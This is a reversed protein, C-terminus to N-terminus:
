IAQPKSAEEYTEKCVSQRTGEELGRIYYSLKGELASVHFIKEPSLRERNSNFFWIRIEINKATFPKNHLYPHIDKNTNIDELYSNVIYLLLKRAKELDVEDYMYFSMAMMEVDDMMGGGTGVLYLNREKELKKAIKTTIGNALRVYSPTEDYLVGCCLLVIAILAAGINFIKKM